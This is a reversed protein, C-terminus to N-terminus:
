TKQEKGGERKERDGDGAVAEVDGGAVKSKEVPAHGQTKVRIFPLFLFGAASLGISVRFANTYPVMHDGTASSTGGGSEFVATTVGLSIATGLKMITQFMGGALAQKDSPLSQMVYMNAVNFHFDAGIVGLILTPFIFAWYTSDPKMLSLLVYAGTYAASGIALLLTNNIRHLILGATTNMILGAVAQPLLHVAVMIPSLRQMEQLFFALWFNAASFAMMGTVCTLLILTFNRDKWIHPPMLPNPCVTEWFGFAILLAVGLIIMAIIHAEKWGDTPGLTIGASLIGTGFVTLVTGVSDFKKAFRKGREKLRMSEPYAEVKPVTWFGIITFLAWIMCILKYTWRWDGAAQTVIGSLLTGFVFGLPNGAGFASFALNKRKSPKGYAAGMIGIAPPVVMAASLGVVGCVINIWYPNQAFSVLLSFASFSGMGILFMNKRGLLDAAQGLGLQFAGSTLATSATIWTIQGQSMHLSQSIPFTIIASAGQFFTTMAIAAMAQLIFVLESFLNPFYIPRPGFSSFNKPKIGDENGSEVASSSSAGTFSPPTTTSKPSNENEQGSGSSFNTTAM